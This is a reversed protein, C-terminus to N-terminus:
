EAYLARWVRRVEAAAPGEPDGFSQGTMVELVAIVRGGLTRSAVVRGDLVIEAVPLATPDELAELLVPTVRPGAGLLVDAAEQAAEPEESALNRVALAAAARGAADLGRQVRLSTKRSARPVRLDEVLRPERGVRFRLILADGAMIDTSAEGIAVLVAARPLLDGVAYARVDGSVQDEILARRDSWPGHAELSRLRLQLKSTRTDASARVEAPVGARPAAARVPAMTLEVPPAVRAALPSSVAVPLVPRAENSSSRRAPSAWLWALGVLGVAGTAAWRRRALRAVVPM